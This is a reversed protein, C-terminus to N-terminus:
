VAADKKGPAAIARWPPGPPPRPPIVGPGFYPGPLRELEYIRQGWKPEGRAVHDHAAPVGTRGAVGEFNAAGRRGPGACTRRPRSRSPRSRGPPLSSADPSPGKRHRLGAPFSPEFSWKRGETIRGRRHILGEDERGRLLPPVASGGGRIDVSGSTGSAPASWICSTTM